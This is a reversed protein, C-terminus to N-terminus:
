GGTASASDTFNAATVYDCLCHVKKDETTFSADLRPAIEATTTFTRTRLTAELLSIPETYAPPHYESDGKWWDPQRAAYFLADWNESFKEKERLYDLPNM